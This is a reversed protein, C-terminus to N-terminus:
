PGAKLTMNWNDSLNLRYAALVPIQLYFIDLQEDRQKGTQKMKIWLTRM